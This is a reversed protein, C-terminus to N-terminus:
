LTQDSKWNEGFSCAGVDSIFILNERWTSCKCTRWFMLLYICMSVLFLYIMGDWTLIMTRMCVYVMGWVYSHSMRVGKVRRKKILIIANRRNEEWLFMEVFSSVCVHSLNTRNESLKELRM